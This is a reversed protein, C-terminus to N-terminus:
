WLNIAAAVLNRSSGEGERQSPEAPSRKKPLKKFERCVSVNQLYDGFGGGTQLPNPAMCLPSSEVFRHALWFAAATTLSQCTKGLSAGQLDSSALLHEGHRHIDIEGGV